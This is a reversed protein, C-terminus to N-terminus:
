KEAIEFFVAPGGPLKATDVRLHLVGNEARAPIEGQRRGNLDVAFVKLRDANGNRIAVSFVGTEFLVPLKGLKQMVRRSSDNFVMGSNLADTAYVLMLHKSQELGPANDISVIALNGNRTM